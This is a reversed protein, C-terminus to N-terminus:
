GGPNFWDGFKQADSKSDVNQVQLKSERGWNVAAKIYVNQWVNDYNPSYELAAWRASHPGNQLFKCCRVEHAEAFQVALWVGSNDNTHDIGTWHTTGDADIALQKNEAPSLQGSSWSKTVHLSPTHNTANDNIDGCAQTYFRIQYIDWEKQGPACPKEVRVRWWQSKPQVYWDIPTVKDPTYNANECDDQSGSRGQVDKGKVAHVSAVYTDKGGTKALNVQGAHAPTHPELSIYGQASMSADVRSDGHTDVKLAALAAAGYLHSCAALILYRRARHAQAAGCVQAM